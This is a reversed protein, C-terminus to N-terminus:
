GMVGQPGQTPQALLSHLLLQASAIAQPNSTSPAGATPMPTPSIAAHAGLPNRPTSVQGPHRPRATAGPIVKGSGIGLTQPNINFGSFPVRAPGGSAGPQGVGTGASFGGVTRPPFGTKVSGPAIPNSGSLDIPEGARQGAAQLVQSLSSRVDSLWDTPDAGTGEFSSREQSSGGSGGGFLAGLGSSIATGLLYMTAPDM